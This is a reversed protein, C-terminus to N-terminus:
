LNCQLLLNHALVMKGVKKVYAEKWLKYGIVNRRYAKSAIIEAEYSGTRKADLQMETFNPLLTLEVTFDDM